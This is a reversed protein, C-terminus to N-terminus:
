GATWDSLLAVAAEYSEVLATPAAAALLARHTADAHSAGAFGIVRMGAAKAATVGAVSDEIVICREPPAGMQAAAFLFLDPAPKGHKVQHSSFVAEDAFFHALGTIELSERIREPHSSSAVCRPLDLRELFAAVGAVATLEERFLAQMAPWLRGPVDPHIESATERAIGALIDPQKMGTYPTVMDPTAPVGAAQLVDAFARRSLIESDVLVGDCDFIVLHKLSAM